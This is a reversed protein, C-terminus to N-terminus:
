YKEILDQNKLMQEIQMYEYDEESMKTEEEVDKNILRENGYITEVKVNEKMLTKINELTERMYSVEYLIEKLLETVDKQTEEIEPKNMVKSKSQTMELKAKIKELEAITKEYLKAKKYSEDMNIITNMLERKRKTISGGKQKRKYLMITFDESPLESSDLELTYFGPKIITIYKSLDIDLANLVDEKLEKFTRANTQLTKPEVNTSLKVSVTVM